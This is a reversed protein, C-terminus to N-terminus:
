WDTGMVECGAPTCGAWWTTASVGASITRTSGDALCVSIGNSFPTSARRPNCVEGSPTPRVQFKEDSWAAFTPQWLDLAFRCWIDGGETCVSYKEAFLITNSTGDMFSTPIVLNAQWSAPSMTMSIVM